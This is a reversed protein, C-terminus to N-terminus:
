GGSQGEAVVVLFLSTSGATAATLDTFVTQAIPGLHLTLAIAGGLLTGGWLFMRLRGMMRKSPALMIGSPSFLASWTAVTLAANVPFNLILVWLLLCIGTDWAFVRSLVDQHEASQLTSGYFVFHLVFLLMALGGVAVIEVFPPLFAQPGLVIRLAYALLVSKIVADMLALKGPQWM